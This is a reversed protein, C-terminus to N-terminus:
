LKLLIYKYIKKEYKILYCIYLYCCYNINNQFLLKNVCILRNFLYYSLMWRMFIKNITVFELMHINSVNYITDIPNIGIVNIYM